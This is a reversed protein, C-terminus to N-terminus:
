YISLIYLDNTYRIYINRKKLNSYIGEATHCQPKEQEKNNQVYSDGM